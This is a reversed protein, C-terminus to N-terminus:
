WKFKKIEQLFLSSQLDVKKNSLITYKIYNGKIVASILKLEHFIHLIIITKLLNVQIKWHAQVHITISLLDIGTGKQKSWFHLFRYMAAFEERNPILEEPSINKIIEEIKGEEQIPFPQELISLSNKPLKRIFYQYLQLYEADKERETTHRLDKMVFQLNRIGNWENIGLTGAIQLIDGQNIQDVWEGCEFGIGEVDGNETRFVVKLHNKKKGICRIGKIYGNYTFLPMPNGMGFPKLIELENIFSFNVDEEEVQADVTLRPILTDKQMVKGAYENIKDRLAPIQDTPLSLGAAMEHGGFKILDDQHAELAKFINFGEVSRASGSAIKGEISLIITPRYYKETIRSAVIGIVGHHWGSSAVVIVKTEEIPVREEIQDIAEELIKSELNQRDKNEEDLAKAIEKARKSDKTIFLEVGRNAQGMRGAANLRPAIRFGIFNSDLDQEKKYGAIELIAQLGINWTHPITKFAERVFVRNEDLLPVIDAITGIAVIDLYKWISPIANLYVALGHVLKFTVGVGALQKFPYSCDSQKPDIVAYGNPVCEQIEHHDTIIIDLGLSNAYEVESVAAIGTDVTIILQGGEEKIHNIAEENLGYGENIRHPIYFSVEGQNEQIFLYLISTSTIGDVDYDGYIYIREKNSIAQIIREVAKKMDKLKLPNHLQNLSPNLFKKLMMPDKIDRNILLKATTESIHFENTIREIDKQNHKPIRWIYKGQDM